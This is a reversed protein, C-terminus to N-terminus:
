VRNFENFKHIVALFAEGFRELKQEGVGNIDAMELLNTPLSAIM